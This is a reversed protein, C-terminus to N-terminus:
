LGSLAPVNGSFFCAPQGADGCDPLGAGRCGPVTACAGAAEACPPTSGLNTCAGDAWACVAYRRACMPESTETSCALATGACPDFAELEAAARGAEGECGGHFWASSLSSLPPCGGDPWASAGAFRAEGQLCAAYSTLAAQLTPPFAAYERACEALREEDCGAFVRVLTACPTTGGGAAAPPTGPSGCAAAFMGVLLARRISAVV